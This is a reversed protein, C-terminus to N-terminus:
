AHMKMTLQAYRLALFSQTAADTFSSINRACIKAGSSASTSESTRVFKSLASPRQYIQDVVTSFVTSALYRPEETKTNKFLLGPSAYLAPLVLILSNEHISSGEQSGGSLRDIIRTM